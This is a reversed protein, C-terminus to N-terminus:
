RLVYNTFETRAGCRKCIGVSVPGAPSEIVWHHPCSEKDVPESPAPKLRRAM